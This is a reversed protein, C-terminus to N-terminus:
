LRKFFLAPYVAVGTTLLYAPASDSNSSCKPLLRSALSRLFCLFLPIPISWGVTFIYSKNKFTKENCIFIKLLWKMEHYCDTGSCENIIETWGSLVLSSAHALCCWVKGCAMWYSFFDGTKKEPVAMWVGLKFKTTGIEYAKLFFGPAEWGSHWAAAPIVVVYPKEKFTRDVFSFLFILLWSRIANSQAHWKDSSWKSLYEAHTDCIWLVQWVLDLSRETELRGKWEGVKRRLHLSTSRLYPTSIFIRNWIECLKLEHWSWFLAVLEGRQLAAISGENTSVKGKITTISGGNKSVEGKITSISGANKSVASNITAFRETM